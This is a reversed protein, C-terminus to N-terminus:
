ERRHMALVAGLPPNGPLAASTRMDDLIRFAPAEQRAYAALSSGGIHANFAALGGILVAAPATGLLSAGRVALYALPVVLPLAYRTTVTEQFLLDFVFYPGFAFLLVFFASRNARYLRVTGLIAVVLITAAMWPRAWPAILASNLASLLQRPTRTTWLM